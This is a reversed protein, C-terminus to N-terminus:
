NESNFVISVGKIPKGNIFDILEEKTTSNYMSLDFLAKNEVYKDLEVMMEYITDLCFLMCNTSCLNFYWSGKSVKDIVGFEILPKLRKAPYEKLKYHVIDNRIKLISQFKKYVKTNTDFNKELFCKTLKTTKKELTWWEIEDFLHITPNDKFNRETKWSLFVENIISEWVNVAMPFFILASPTFANLESIKNDHKYYNKFERFFLDRLTGHLQSSLSTPDLKEEM